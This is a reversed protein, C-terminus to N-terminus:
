GSVEIQGVHEIAMTRGCQKMDRIAGRQEIEIGGFRFRCAMREGSMRLETIADMQREDPYCGISVRPLVDYVTLSESCQAGADVDVWRAPLEVDEFMVRTEGLVPPSINSRPMAGGVGDFLGVISIECHAPESAGGKLRLNGVANSITYKRGDDEWQVSLGDCAGMQPTLKGRERGYSSLAFWPLLRRDTTYAIADLRGLRLGSIAYASAHLAHLEVRPQMDYVDLAGLAGRPGHLMLRTYRYDNAGGLAGRPGHLMKRYESM